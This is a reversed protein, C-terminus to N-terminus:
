SHTLRVHILGAWGQLNCMDMVIALYTWGTATYIYSIGGAWRTNPENM